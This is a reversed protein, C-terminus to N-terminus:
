KKTAAEILWVFLPHAKELRSKFEPHFQVGVMYDCGPTEMIEVLNRDENIWAMKMGNKEFIDKYDNNFEYRHRHRESIIPYGKNNIGLLDDKRYKTYYKHSATKPILTCPCAGLRMSAGYNKNRIQERQEEMTSIVLNKSWCDREETAADKIKCVNRAFEIAMVQLGYCLGLYPINNERIYKCAIIKWEIGRTWFGWPIIVADYDDLEKVKKPDKEYEESNLWGIVPKKDCQWAAYKISELVSIYADANTFDGHMFYKWVVAVKVKDKVTKTKKVLQKWKKLKSKKNELWLKDLVKNGFDEKEFNEPIEYISACDPASIISKADLSCITAIRTRRNEDVPVSARCVIFDAQIGASNLTRIAHQTPKSKMEGVTAPIPLYSVVIFSVDQPHKYKMIRAAELFLLLQYEGITWWFEIITVDADSRKAALKIRRIIENPIDPVVEVDEGDFELNRERRIVEQYVQGTTIYQLATSDQWTFREYNGLDQDAEIGDEGIFVEGHEGPNITGADINVYMDCKINAVKYWKSQLIKGVSASTVGKGVSSIVWWTVFIYKM